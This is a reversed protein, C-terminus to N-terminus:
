GIQQWGVRLYSFNRTIADAFHSEKKLSQTLGFISTKILYQNYPM